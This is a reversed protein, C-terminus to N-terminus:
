ISLFNLKFSFHDARYFTLGQLLFDEAEMESSATDEASSSLVQLGNTAFGYDVLSIPIQDSSNGASDEPLFKDESNSDSPQSQALVELKASSKLVQALPRRRDKRKTLSDETLAGQSRKRKVSSSNDHLVEDPDGMISPKTRELKKQSSKVRPMTGFTEDDRTLMSHMFKPKIVISGDVPKPHGMLLPSTQEKVEHQRKELELAHLIADERRAYKERKRM